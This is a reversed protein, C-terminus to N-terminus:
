RCPPRHRRRLLKLIDGVTLLKEAEKDSIQLGFNEEIAMAVEVADLDDAGLDEVIRANDTVKAIDGGLHEVLLQKLKTPM